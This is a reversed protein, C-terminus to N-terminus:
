LRFCVLSTSAYILYQPFPFCVQKWRHVHARRTATGGRDCIEIQGGPTGALPSKRNVRMDRMSRDQLTTVFEVDYRKAHPALRPELSVPPEAPPPPVSPLAVLCPHRRRKRCNNCKVFTSDNRGLITCARAAPRGATALGYACM